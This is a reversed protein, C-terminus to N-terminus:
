VCRKEDAEQVAKADVAELRKRAKSRLIPVVVAGTLVSTGVAIAASVWAAKGTSWTNGMSKAAGKTSCACHVMCVVSLRLLVRAVLLALAAASLKLSLFSSFCSPLPSRGSAAITYTSTVPRISCLHWPVKSGRNAM